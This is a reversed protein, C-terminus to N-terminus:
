GFLFEVEEFSRWFCEYKCKRFKQATRKLMNLIKRLLGAAVVGHLAVRLVSTGPLVVELEPVLQDGEDGRDDLLVLVAVPWHEVLERLLEVNSM